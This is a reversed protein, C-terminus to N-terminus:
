HSIIDRRERCRSPDARTGPRPRAVGPPRPVRRVPAGAALDLVETVPESLPANGVFGVHPLGLQFGDDVYSAHFEDLDGALGGRRVAATRERIV